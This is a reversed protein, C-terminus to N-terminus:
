PAKGKDFMELFKKVNESQLDVNKSFYKSKKRERMPQLDDLIDWQVIVIKANEVIKAGNLNVSNSQLSRNLFIM